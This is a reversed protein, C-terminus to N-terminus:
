LLIICHGSSTIYGFSVYKGIGHIVALNHGFEDVLDHFAQSTKDVGKFAKEWTEGTITSRKRNQLEEAM